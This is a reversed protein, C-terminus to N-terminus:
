DLKVQLDHLSNLINMKGQIIEDHVLMEQLYVFRREHERDKNTQFIEVLRKVHNKLTSKEADTMLGCQVVESFFRALASLYLDSVANEKVSEDYDSQELVAKVLEKVPVAIRLSKLRKHQLFLSFLRMTFGLSTPTSFDECERLLSTNWPNQILHGAHEELSFLAELCRLATLKVLINVHFLSNQLYILIMQLHIKTLKRESTREQTTTLNEASSSAECHETDEFILVLNSDSLKRSELCKLVSQWFLNAAIQLLPNSCYTLLLLVAEAKVSIVNKASIGFTNQLHLLQCISVLVTALASTQQTRELQTSCQYSHIVTELFSNYEQHNLLFSLVKDSAHKTDQIVCANLFNLCKVHLGSSNAHHTLFNVVHYVLKNFGEDLPETVCMTVLLCLLQLISEMNQNSLPDVAQNLFLKQVAQKLQPLVQKVAQINSFQLVHQIVELLSNQAHVDVSSLTSVLMLLRGPNENVIRKWFTMEKEKNDTESGHSFWLEMIEKRLNPDLEQFTVSWQLLAIDHFYLFSLSEMNRQLGDALIRQADFYIHSSDLKTQYLEKLYLQTLCRPIVTSSDCYCTPNLVLFTSLAHLLQARPILRDGNIYALHFVILICEQTIKLIEDQANKQKLIQLLEQATGNVRQLSSSLVNGAIERMDGPLLCCCMTQLFANVPDQVNTSSVHQAKTELAIRIFCSSVFKKAMEYNGDPSCTQLLKNLVKFFTEPVTTDDINRLNSIINPICIQDCLKLLTKLFRELEQLISENTSALLVEISPPKSRGFIVLDLSKNIM